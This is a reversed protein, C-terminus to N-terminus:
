PIVGFHLQKGRQRGRSVVRWSKGGESWGSAVRTYSIKRNIQLLRSPGAHTRYVQLLLHTGGLRGIFRGTNKKGAYLNPSTWRKNPCSHLKQLINWLKLSFLASSLGATGIEYFRLAHLAHISWYFYHYHEYQYKAFKEDLNQARHSEPPNLGSKGRQIYNHLPIWLAAQTPELGNLTASKRFTQNLRFSQSQKGDINHFRRWGWCQMERMEFNTDHKKKLIVTVSFVCSTLEQKMRIM